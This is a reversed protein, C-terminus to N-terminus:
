KRPRWAPAWCAKGETGPLRSWAEDEVDFIAIVTGQEAGTVSALKDGKPSWSPSWYEADNERPLLIVQQTDAMMRCLGRKGERFTEAAIWRGNAAWVPNWDAARHNSLNRLGYQDLLFIERDGGQDSEFAIRTGGPSVRPSWESYRMSPPADPVFALVPVAQTETILLLETTLGEPGADLGIAFLARTPGGSLAEGTSLGSERRVAEVDVGPVEGTKAPDISLLLRPNPLWVPQYLARRPGGWIQQEGTERDVVLLASQQPEEKYAECAIYRGDPSLAPHRYRFFDSGSSGDIRAGSDDWVSWAVHHRETKSDIGEYALVKGDRSWAPRTDPVCRGLAVPEKLGKPDLLVVEAAFPNGAVCAIWDQPEAHACPALLLALAFFRRARSPKGCGAFLSTATRVM